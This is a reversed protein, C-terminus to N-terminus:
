LSSAQDIRLSDFNKHQALAESPTVKEASTQPSEVLAAPTTALSVLAHNPDLLERLLAEQESFKRDLATLLVSCLEVQWERVSSPSSVLPGFPNLAKDQKESTPVPM